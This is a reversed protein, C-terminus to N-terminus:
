NALAALIVYQLWPPKVLLGKSGVATSAPTLRRPTPLNPKKLHREERIPPQKRATDEHPRGMCTQEQPRQMDERKKEACWDSPILAGRVAENSSSCRKFTRVELCLWVILCPPTPPYSKLM